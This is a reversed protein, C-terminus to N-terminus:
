MSAKVWVQQPAAISADKSDISIRVPQLGSKKEPRAEFTLLFQNRQLELISDLFPQFSVPSGFGIMYSEAGTQDSLESLFNQGWTTRWYSHGLHGVSPSYISYVLIGARLASNIGATVYPNDPYLGGGLGEIGSSIMLVEKRQAGDDPWKKAADTLSDYPSVDAGGSGMALRISNAAAAHDTTFQQAFDVMGNRMYAVGVEYSAPLANIFSKLTSIETDFSSRASDDIMLLFQTKAQEGLPTFGTVPRKDRDQRVTIDAQEIQPVTKGRRPELTIVVSTPVGPAAQRASLPAALSVICLAGAVVLRKTFQM